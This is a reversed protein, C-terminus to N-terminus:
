DYRAEAWWNEGSLLLLWADGDGDIIQFREAHRRREGDWWRQRLPWPGTWEAVPRRPATGAPCFWAPPSLLTGRQDTTVSEGSADLLLVPVPAAFVTAPQPDPISGPWPRAAQVAADRPVPDGWPTLLRRENLVRGGSVAPVLVSEQGLMSQLRSLGHHIKEEAGEGFLAQGHGTISDVRGPVLEVRVVASAIGASHGGATGASRPQLQWRVRDVVDTATFHRPHGWLRESRVGSEDLLSVKLETCALGAEQLGAVFEGAPARLQFAIQDIRDLGPEFDVQRDLKRPPVRPVVTKPDGGGAMAHALTGAEGFRARVDSLPLRAFDGLTHIGLRKLLSSLRPQELAEVPFPALFDRSTGPPLVLLAASETTSRAAQGAAFVSDAVGVRAEVGLSDAADLVAGAASEESGYYRAAGRARVACLGPRLVEVGPTREELSALIPEFERADRLPDAACVALFTCRTQAERLRLGRVVGEGRAEASCAVVKGQSIVAAPVGAPVEDALRAAVLPWDPFWAVLVRSVTGGAM